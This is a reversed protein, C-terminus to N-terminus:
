GVRLLFNQTFPLNLSNAPIKKCARDLKKEFGIKRLFKIEMEKFSFVSVPDIKNV